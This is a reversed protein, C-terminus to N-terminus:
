KHLSKPLFNNIEEDSFTLEEQKKLAISANKYAKTITRPSGRYIDLLEKQLFDRRERIIELSINGTQLDTILSFYSERINWLSVAADAHKQALGGLDYKKVYTNLITLVFSLIASSIGITKCEGFVTALIGTTIIVSLIIQLIKINNLRKNLIDACKEHTKHTWVVRGFCERLQDEILNLPSNTEM